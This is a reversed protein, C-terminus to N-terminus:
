RGKEMITKWFRENFRIVSEHDLHLGDSTRYDNCSETPLIEIKNSSAFESLRKRFYKLQEVNTMRCDVPMEYFYINTGMQKYYDVFSQLEISNFDVMDDIGKLDSFILKQVRIKEQLINEQVSDVNGLKSNTLYKKTESKVTLESKEHFEIIKHFFKFYLWGLFGMPQNRERFIPVLRKLDYLIPTFLYKYYTNEMGGMFIFNTELFLVKPVKGIRKLVQMSYTPRGGATSFNYFTKDTKSLDILASLSTGILIKETPMEEYAMEQMKVLNGQWISQYQGPFRTAFAIFISYGILFCFTTLLTKRIM